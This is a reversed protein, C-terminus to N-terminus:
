GSHIVRIFDGSSDVSLHDGEPTIGSCGSERTCEKSIRGSVNKFFRDECEPPLFLDVIYISDFGPSRDHSKSNVNNIKAGTCIQLGTVESFYDPTEPRDNCGFLFIVSVMMWTKEARM